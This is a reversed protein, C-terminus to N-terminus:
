AELEDAVQEELEALTAWLARMTFPYNLGTGLTSVRLVIGEDIADALDADLECAEDVADSAEEWSRVHLAALLDDFNGIVQRAPKPKRV